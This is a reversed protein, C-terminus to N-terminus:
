TWPARGGSATAGSGSSRRRSGRRKGTRGGRRRGSAGRGTAATRWSASTSAAPSPGRGSASPRWSWGTARGSTTTRPRATTPASRWRAAPSACWGTPTRRWPAPRPPSWPARPATAPAAGKLQLAQLVTEGHQYEHQAVMRYVYGDRLLEPDAAGSEGAQLRELVRRRSRAMHDLTDALRPLPLEGRVSRPNEFPNFIGPMESFRVPGELNRVLWLEEFHAVHGLDWVLPSMLRDHQNMLEAEPVAAVLLLTRERADQLLAAVEAAAPAGSPSVPM